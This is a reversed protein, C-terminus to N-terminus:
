SDADAMVEDHEGGVPIFQVRRARCNGRRAGHRAPETRTGCDPWALTIGTPPGISRCSSRRGSARWAWRSVINPGPAAKRSPWRSAISATTAPRSGSARRAASRTPCSGRRSSRSARGAPGPGRARREDDGRQERQHAVLDLGRVPEAQAGDRDVGRVAVVPRPDLLVEEVVPDVDQEDGRLPERVLVEVRPQQGVDLPGDPHEDHVLRVADAVPAVVEDRVVPPDPPQQRRQPRVHRDEPRRRRRVVPDDLVDRALQAVVHRDDAPRERPVRQVEVRDRQPVLRLPEAPERLVERPHRAGPM